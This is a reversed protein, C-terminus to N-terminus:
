SKKAKIQCIGRWDVMKIAAWADEGLLGKEVCSDKDYPIITLVPIGTIETIVKPNSEESLDKGEPNYSNIVIGAIVLGAEQCASVTLLSHNISGLKSGSVILVPLKMEAMMDVVLYGEELPVMVGGIGEVLIAECKSTLNHYALCLEEWDIERGALRAAVLPALPEHYRIPNIEELSFPSNSCHALFEADSSVLGERVLKCGTAIPKFVGVRVGKRTLFRSIAGTVLTKGVGTDTATIFLGKAPEFQRKKMDRYYWCHL